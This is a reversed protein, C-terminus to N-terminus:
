ENRSDFLAYSFLNGYIESSRACVDMLKKHDELRKRVQCGASYAGVKQADGRLLSTTHSNLGQVDDYIPGNMDLQGDSDNDRWGKFIKNGAQVLAQYEGHHLGIKWCRSYYGPALIFTGKMNGLKNKLWYLGPKTTGAHLLLQPENKEDRYAIGLLDNFIDVELSRRIGFLNVNFKGEDYFRYGLKAYLDRVSEYNNPIM